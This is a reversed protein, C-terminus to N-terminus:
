LEEHSSDDNEEEEEDLTETEESEDEYEEDYLEDYEEYEDAEPEPGKKSAIKWEDIANRISLEAYDLDIQQRHETGSLIMVEPLNTAGLRRSIDANMIADLHAFSLTGWFEKALTKAVELVKETEDETPDVAIFVVPLKRNQYMKVTSATWEGFMPVSHERIFSVIQAYDTINGDFFVPSEDFPRYMRLSPVEADFSEAIEADATRGFNASDRLVDAVQMYVNDPDKGFFMLNIGEETIHLETEEVTELYNVAEELQKELYNFVHTDTRVDEPFYRPIKSKWFIVAPLKPGVLQECAAKAEASSCDFRVVKPYEDEDLRRFQPKNPIARALREWRKWLKKKNGEANAEEFAVVLIRDDLEKILEQLTAIDVEETLEFTPRRAPRTFNKPAQEPTRQSEPVEVVPDEVFFYLNIMFIALLLGLVIMITKSSCLPESSGTVGDWQIKSPHANAHGGKKNTRKKSGKKTPKVM